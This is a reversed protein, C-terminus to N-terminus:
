KEIRLILRKDITIFFRAARMRECNVIQRKVTNLLLTFYEIHEPSSGLSNNISCCQLWFLQSLFNQLSIHFFLLFDKCDVHYREAKFVPNRDICVEDEIDTEQRIWM